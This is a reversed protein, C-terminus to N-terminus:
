INGKRLNACVTRYLEIIQIATQRRNQICIYDTEVEIIKKILKVYEPTRHALQRKEEAACKLTEDYGSAITLKKTEVLANYEARLRAHEYDTEELTALAEEARDQINKIDSNDIENESHTQHLFRDDRRYEPKKESM